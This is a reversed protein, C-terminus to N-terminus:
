TREIVDSAAPNAPPPSAPLMEDTRTLVGHYRTVVTKATELTVNGVWVRLQKIHRLGLDRLEARVAKAAERVDKAATPDDSYDRPFVVSVDVGTSNKAPREAKREARFQAGQERWTQEYDPWQTHLEYEKLCLLAGLLTDENWSELGATEVPAGLKILQQTRLKREQLAVSRLTAAVSDKRQLARQRRAEPSNDIPETRKSTM